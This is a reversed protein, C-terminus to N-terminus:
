QKVIKLPRSETPEKSRLFYIGKTQNILNLSNHGACITQEVVIQGLANTLVIDISATSEIVFEGGGPNPYIMLHTAENTYNEIGTCPDVILNLTQTPAGCGNSVTLSLVGSADPTLSITNSTSSGTWSAPFSWNYNATPDNPVSYNQAVGVCTITNGSLSFVSLTSSVVLNLTQTSSSCSNFVTLSFLGTSNPILSMTNTTSSGTWGAPLSWIYTASPDNTVSYNETVGACTITNGSLTSFPPINCFKVLFADSNGGGIVNQHGNYAIGITSQTTGALYVSGSGDTCCSEGADLDDGGYYTGWQRLGSSNFKVLFADVGGEYTSQFAGITAIGATSSTTGGLYVNGLTDTSCSIGNDISTGGYYTGWQRVGSSNFKILFADGTGANTNQHGGSAIGLTGQTNGVLYVNGSGDTSCSRGQDAVAGGYYTAWQRIGSSNFKVLFADMNGGGFANQHGASAIGATFNTSGVLYVNGSADTCCTGGNYVSNGGSYYTAWQRVGASNFKVLFVDKTGSFTNQHGGSAIGATSTTMGSLYVNGLPDTACFSFGLEAGSGGYYTGWQRVGASNFKVLFLDGGVNTNQHGGSAIGLSSGTIGAMYVNGSADTACSSAADIGTGGYYTGWQRVGSSNFKVLFADDPGGAPANQHGGSYINVASQTNGTLYVNGSADTCSGWGQDLTSGGYYTAWIVAPDIVLSQNQDYSGLSFSVINNTLIFKTTISQNGQFSQPAKESISGLKNKLILSGDKRLSLKEHDTFEMKIISPDIGPKVVFDYKVEKDRTYIIWDIGPYIDHYVVRNYSHVDLIGLNYFNDTTNLEENSIRGTNNAGILRMDMRCTEVRIQQQLAELKKQDKATSQQRMLDQYGKPYHTKTFQYAIGSELLFIQTNGKQFSYKVEQKSLGDPGKVQGKNETFAFPRLSFGGINVKTKLKEAAEPIVYNGAAASNPYHLNALCFVLLSYFRVLPIKKM